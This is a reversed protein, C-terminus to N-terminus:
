AFGARSGHLARLTEGLEGVDRFVLDPPPYARVVDDETAEGSLVMIGLAGAARAFAADTMLRDGVMAIEEGGLRHRRCLTELMAPAPKGAVYDPRRGTAAYLAACIAGCDVLVTREDTPCTFDPNTAVFPKDAQLWWAARCLREYTISPDFAALVIDPEDDASCDTLVYGAARLEEALSPTGLVFLRRAEPWHRRLLEVAADTSVMIDEPRAPIGLAQLKREYDAHSRSSNNTLYTRGLGLEKLASLFPLTGPLLTRGRYLTGDLDLAFHRVRRLRERSEPPLSNVM